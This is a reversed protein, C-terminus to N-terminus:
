GLRLNQLWCTQSNLLALGLVGVFCVTLSLWMLKARTRRLLARDQPSPTPGACHRRQVRHAGVLALFASGDFITKDNSQAKANALIRAALFLYVSMVVAAIAYFFTTAIENSICATM